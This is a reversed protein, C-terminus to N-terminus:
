PSLAFVPQSPILIIHWLPVVHINTTYNIAVHKGQTHYITPELGPTTFSFHLQVKWKYKM